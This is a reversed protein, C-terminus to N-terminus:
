SLARSADRAHHIIRVILVSEGVVTYFIRHKRHVICRLARGLEPKEAGALPHRRLVDITENFGRAYTDAADRGFQDVSYDDFDALDAKAQPSFKIKAV